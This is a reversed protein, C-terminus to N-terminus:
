SNPVFNMTPKKWSLQSIVPDNPRNPLSKDGYASSDDNNSSSTALMSEAANLAHLTMLSHLNDQQKLSLSHRKFVPTMTTQTDLVPCVECYLYGCHCPESGIVVKKTEEKYDAVIEAAKITVGAVIVCTEYQRHTSFADFNTSWFALYSQAQGDLTLQSTADQISNKQSIGEVLVRQLLRERVISPIDGLQLRLNEQALELSGAAACNAVAYRHFNETPLDEIEILELATNSTAREHAVFSKLDQVPASSKSSSAFLAFVSGTFLPRMWGNQESGVLIAVLITPFILPLSLVVWFWLSSFSSTSNHKGFVGLFTTTLSSSSSLSM